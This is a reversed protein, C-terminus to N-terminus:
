HVGFQPLYPAYEDLAAALMGEAAEVSPTLPDALLAQLALERDGRLAAEITLQQQRVRNSLIAAIGDPLAGMGLPRMGYGGILAPVEVIAEPPLNSIYGANPV